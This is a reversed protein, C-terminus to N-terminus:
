VTSSALGPEKLPNSRTSELAPPEIVLTSLLVQVESPTRLGLASNFFRTPNRRGTMFYLEPNVPLALISDERRSNKEILPVLWQYFDQEKQAVRLGVRHDMANKSVSTREGAVQGILGRTLPQGAHSWLGVAAILLTTCAMTVQARKSWAASLALLGCQVLAVSYFLYVAIEYHVSVLGFFVAMHALVPAGTSNLSQKVTIWGLIPPAMLLSMWFLGNVISRPGLGEASLGAFVLPLHLYSAKDIFPLSVLRFATLLTDDIWTMLSGHSLHYIVLPALAMLAGLMMHGAMRIVARDSMVCNGSATVILAIPWVGFMLISFFSANKFLYVGLIVACLALIARGLVPKSFASRHEEETLLYTILGIAVFAGTLQRLMFVTMVLAGLVAFRWRAERPMWATVAVLLVTAFLAYWNASPNLFQVFTLAVMSIGGAMAVMWGQNRFLWLVLLCQIVTLLALPYRLGVMSTGFIKFAAAHIFHVLGLHLDYISGNLVEGKLMREAIHAYAGEDPGWWTQDHFQWVMATALLAILVASLRHMTTESDM